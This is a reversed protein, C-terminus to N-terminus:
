GLAPPAGGPPPAAPMPPMTTFPGFVAAPKMLSAGGMPAGTGSLPSMTAGAGGAPQFQYLTSPAIQRSPVGVPTYTCRPVASLSMMKRSPPPAQEFPLKQLNLGFLTFWTSAPSPLVTSPEAAPAPAPRCCGPAYVSRPCMPGGAPM